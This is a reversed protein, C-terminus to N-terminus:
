KRNKEADRPKAKAIKTLARDLDAKSGEAEVQRAMEIFRKSQAPDDPKPRHSGSM